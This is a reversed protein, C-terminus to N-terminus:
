LSMVCVEAYRPQGSGMQNGYLNPEIQVPRLGGAELGEWWQLWASLTQPMHFFEGEDPRLHIEILIQGVPLAEGPRGLADMFSNLADFEAGEIDMKMIDIYDHGNEKMLDQVSYFPPDSLKNTAKGIGIQQFHARVASSPKLQDGWATVSYDYGWIECNTRNLMQEEFESNREVGFSYIVFPKERAYSEYKSMGCIWKGGDGISGVRETDFPCNFTPMIFDYANYPWFFDAPFRVLM